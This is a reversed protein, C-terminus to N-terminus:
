NPRATEETATMSVTTASEGYPGTLSCTLPNFKGKQLCFMVAAPNTPDSPDMEIYHTAELGSGDSTLQEWFEVRFNTTSTWGDTPLRFQMNTDACNTWNTPGPNTGAPWSVGCTTNLTDVITSSPNQYSLAVNVFSNVSEDGYVGSYPFTADLSTLTFDPVDRVELPLARSLSLLPLLSLM